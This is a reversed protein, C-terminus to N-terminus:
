LFFLNLIYHKWLFMITAQIVKNSLRIVDRKSSDLPRRILLLASFHFHKDCYKVEVLTVLLKLM